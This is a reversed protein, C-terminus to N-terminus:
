ASTPASARADSATLETTQLAVPEDDSREALLAALHMAQMLAPAGTLGLDASLAPLDLWAGRYLGTGTDLLQGEFFEAAGLRDIICQVAAGRAYSASIPRLAEAAEAALTATVGLEALRARAQGATTRYGAERNTGPESSQLEIDGPDFLAYEANLPGEHAEVVVHASLELTCRSM